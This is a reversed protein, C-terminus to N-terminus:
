FTGDEMKKIVEERSVDKTLIESQEREIDSDQKTIEARELDRGHKVFTMEKLYDFVKVIGSWLSSILSIVTAISWSM